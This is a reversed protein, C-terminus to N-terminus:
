TLCVFFIGRIGFVRYDYEHNHSMIMLRSDYVDIIFVCTYLFPVLFVGKINNLCVLTLTLLQIDIYIFANTHRRARKHIRTHTNLKIALLM